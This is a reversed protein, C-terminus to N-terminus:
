KLEEKERKINLFAADTTCFLLVETLPFSDTHKLFDYHRSMSYFVANMTTGKYHPLQKNSHVTFELVVNWLNWQVKRM